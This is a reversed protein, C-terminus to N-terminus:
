QQRPMQTLVQPEELCQREALVDEHSAPCVLRDALRQGPPGIENQRPGRPEAGGIAGDDPGEVLRSERRAGIGRQHHDAPRLNVPLAQWKGGSDMECQHVGADLCAVREKCTPATGFPLLREPFAMLGTFLVVKVIGEDRQIAMGSRLYSVISRGPRGNTISTRFRRPM